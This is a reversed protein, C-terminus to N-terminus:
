ARLARDVCKLIWLLALWSLIDALEGYVDVSHGLYFWSIMDSIVDMTLLYGLFLLETLFRPMTTWRIQSSPTSPHHVDLPCNNLFSSIYRRLHVQFVLLPYQFVISARQNCPLKWLAFLHHPDHVFPITLSTHKAVFFCLSFCSSSSMSSTSSRYILEHDQLIWWGHNADCKNARTTANREHLLCSVIM